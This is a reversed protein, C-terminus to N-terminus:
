LSQYERCNFDSIALCFVDYPEGEPSTTMLTSPNSLQVTPHAPTVQPQPQTNVIETLPGQPEPPPTGSTPLTLRFFLWPM